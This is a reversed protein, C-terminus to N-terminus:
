FLHASRDLTSAHPLTGPCMSQVQVHTDKLEDAFVRTVANLAVKSMRYGMQKGNMEQLAGAGSSMNVVRGYNQARMSPVLKQMIKLASFTNIQLSQEIVSQKADFVSVGADLFAGANNVL